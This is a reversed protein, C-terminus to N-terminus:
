GAEAPGARNQESSTFHGASKRLRVTAAHGQGALTYIHLLQDAEQMVTALNIRDLTTFLVQHSSISYLDISRFETTVTIQQEKQDSDPNTRSLSESVAGDVSRLGLRANVERFVQEGPRGLGFM